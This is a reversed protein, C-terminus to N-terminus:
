MSEKSRRKVKDSKEEDRYAHMWTRKPTKKDAAKEHIELAETYKGQKQLCFGVAGVSTAFEVRQEESHGLLLRMIHLRIQYEQRAKGLLELLAQEIPTPAM